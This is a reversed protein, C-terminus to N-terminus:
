DPLALLAPLEGLGTIRRLPVSGAGTLGGSGRRDLWIGRLGAADAGEADLDPRDGVYAVERPALRLAACVAHFAEPAPKAHGLEDSCLLVEFRERVGLATLKRHQAAVGSNSLLGHRYAPTLADLAPLVDPFLAWAGEYHRRYGEFWADAAADDLERDLFDRVRERRQGAFTLERSTFRRYHVDTAEEWRALAAEHSPFRRLLGTEGFYALAGTRAAGSHDFVTDDIDWVVARIAM